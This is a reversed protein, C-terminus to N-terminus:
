LKLSRKSPPVSVAGQYKKYESVVNESLSDIVFKDNGNIQIYRSFSGRCSRSCCTYSSGKYLHTQGSRRQFLEKCWPCKLSVEKVGKAKGHLRSHDEASLVELNVLRNDKKNENKHHVIEEDSLVRGLSNEVVVRHELVYDNKTRNPHDRVIAYNYDGKSM